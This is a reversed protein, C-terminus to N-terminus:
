GCVFCRDNNSMMSVISPTLMTALQKAANFKEAIRIVESLTQPDKKYIKAAITHVEWPGKFFVSPQLTMTLPVNSVQQKLTTSMAMLTENDKQQIEM